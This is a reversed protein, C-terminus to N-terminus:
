FTFRSIGLGAFFYYAISFIATQLRLPVWYSSVLGLMPIFIIFTTNLWNIHQYMNGWTMPQDAIHPKRIDYQKKRLPVHDTTGDPFAAAQTAQVDVSTSAM